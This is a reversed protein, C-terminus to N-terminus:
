FLSYSLKALNLLRTKGPATKSEYFGDLYYYLGNSIQLDDSIQYSVSFANEVAGSSRYGTQQIVSDDEEGVAEWVPAYSIQYTTGVALALGDVIEPEYSAWVGYSSGYRAYDEKITLDDGTSATLGYTERISTRRAEDAVSISTENRGIHQTAYIDAAGGISLKGAATEMSHDASLETGLELELQSSGYLPFTLGARPELSLIDNDILSYVAFLEPNRQGITRQQPFEKTEYVKNLGLTLSTDLKGDLWKAGVSGRLQMFPTPNEAGDVVENYHRLSIGSYATPFYDRLNIKSAIVEDAFVQAGFSLGLMALAALLASRRLVSKLMIFEEVFYRVCRNAGVRLQLSVMVLVDLRAVSTM